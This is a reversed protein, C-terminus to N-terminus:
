LRRQRRNIGGINRLNAQRRQAAREAQQRVRTVPDDPETASEQEALTHGFLDVRPPAPTIGFDEPSSTPHEALMDTETEYVPIDPYHSFDFEGWPSQTFAVIRAKECRFGRSGVTVVGYGEIVAPIRIIWFMGADNSGDFYAYFGCSCGHIGARHPETSSPSGSLWDSPGRLCEASNEGPGWPNGRVGVLPGPLDLETAPRFSRLGFVSGAAFPRDSFDSM